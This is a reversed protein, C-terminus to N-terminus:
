RIPGLFLTDNSSSNFNSPFRKSFMKGVVGHTKEHNLSKSRKESKEIVKRGNGEGLQKRVTKRATRKSTTKTSSRSAIVERMEPLAAELTDKGLKEATPLVFKRFIPFGKRAIKGVPAGLGRRNQRPTGKLFEPNTYGAM